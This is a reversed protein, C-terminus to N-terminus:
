YDTKDTNTDIEVELFVKQAKELRQLVEDQGLLVMSENIPPTVRQGSLALRMAMYFDGTKYGKKQIEATLTNNIEELSWTKVGGLVTLASSVYLDSKLDEFIDKGYQPEEKFLLLLSEAESLKNIRTKVLESMEPSVSFSTHENILKTLEEINKNQIYQQNLWDLKKTDFIPGAKRVRELSFEDVFEDLSFIEKGEPHSWGLLCLFNVLAEPLYGQERFLRLDVPDRRKSLKKHDANRLTPFHAFQPIEWGFAKYTAIQRPTNSIHEEGRIVHTIEMDHDDVVTAFNYTPFGDSKIMVYDTVEKGPFTVEKRIIDKWSINQGPNKLRIAGKDEYAKGEKVLQNAYRAYVGLKESIRYPSFPGGKDPGEDWSFGLWELGLYIAEEAGKIQRKVDSDDLRLVLMGKNKRTFAYNLLCVYATGVHAFGTPSPAIRTRIKRDGMIKRHVIEM